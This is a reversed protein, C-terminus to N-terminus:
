LMKEIVEVARAIRDNCTKKNKANDALLERCIISGEAQEYEMALKKVLDYTEKKTKPKSIDGDSNEMGALMFMGTVAGCVERMGGMGGGFGESLKFATAEDIGYKECFTCFVAQACNYGCKHKEVAKERNDM